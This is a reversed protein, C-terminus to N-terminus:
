LSMQRGTHDVFFAEESVLTKRELIDLIGNASESAEM